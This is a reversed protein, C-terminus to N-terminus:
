AAEQTSYNIENGGQVDYKPSVYILVFVEKRKYSGHDDSVSMGGEKYHDNGLYSYVVKFGCKKLVEVADKDTTCTQIMHRAESLCSLLKERVDDETLPHLRYGRTVYMWHMGSCVGSMETSGIANSM